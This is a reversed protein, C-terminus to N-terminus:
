RSTRACKRCCRQFQSLEHKIPPPPPLPNLCAISALPAPKNFFSPTAAPPPTQPLILHVVQPAASFSRSPTPTHPPLRECGLGCGCAHCAADHDAAPARARSSTCPALKSPSRQQLPSISWFSHFHTVVFTTKLKKFFSKNFLKFFLVLPCSPHAHRRRRVCAFCLTLADCAGGSGGSSGGGL